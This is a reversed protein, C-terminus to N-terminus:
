LSNKMELSRNERGSFEVLKRGSKDITMSTSVGSYKNKAKSFSSEAISDGQFGITTVDKFKHHSIYQQVGNIKTLINEIFIIHHLNLLNKNDNMYKKIHNVSDNFEEETEVYDFLKGFMAKLNKLISRIESSDTARCVQIHM